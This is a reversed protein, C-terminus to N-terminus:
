ELFKKRVEPTPIMCSDKKGFWKYRNRAVWKYIPNRIFSPIFIFSYLLPYFGSLKKAIKLAATSYYYPKDNEIIIVSDIESINIQYKEILLKGVESQLPAFRLLDKVDRKIMFQVSTNCFNCVGDFLVISYKKDM